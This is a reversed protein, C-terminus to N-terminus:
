KLDFDDIIDSQKDTQMIPKDNTFYHLLCVIVGFEKNLLTVGIIWWNLKNLRKMDGYIIIAMVFNGIIYAYGFIRALPLLNPNLSGEPKYIQKSLQGLIFIILSIVFIYILYRNLYLKTRNQM